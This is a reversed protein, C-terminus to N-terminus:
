SKISKNSEVLMGSPASGYFSKHARYFSSYDNFGAQYAAETLRAGCQVEQRAYGLRKATLYKKIPMGVNNHFLFNLHNKTIAFRDSLDNLSIDEQLNDGIYVIVKRIREDLVVPKVAKAYLLYHIQSLLSVVRSKLTIKQLSTEMLFCEAVAKVYFDLNHLSGNLLHIPKILLNQFFGMEEENLLDLLFHISMRHSIRESPWKWHHHCDPPMLLLSDSVIHYVHGDLQLEVEGDIMYLIECEIHRHSANENFVEDDSKVDWLFIQEFQFIEYQYM